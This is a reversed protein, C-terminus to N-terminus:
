INSSVYNASEYFSKYYNLHTPKNGRLYDRIKQTTEEAAQL